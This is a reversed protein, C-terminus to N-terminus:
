GKRIILNTLDHGDDKLHLTHENCLHLLAVFALPVSLSEIMKQPLRNDVQLATYMESFKTEDKLGLAEIDDSGQEKDQNLNDKNEKDHEERLERTTEQLISWQINKLRRMDVKKAQKAYGIQIKEVGKPATILGGDADFASTQSPMVTQSFVNTFEGPDDDVAGEERNSMDPCFNQTDNPNDFDYDGVENDEIPQSSRLRRPAVNSKTVGELKVFDKGSYHLDEPLMTKEEDWNSMTKNQLKVNKKPVKMAKSILMNEEPAVMIEFDMKEKERRKKKETTAGGAVSSLGTRLMPKKTFKWHKPGAWAGFRAKDFYSYEDPVDALHDRITQIDLVERNAHPRPHEEDGDYDVAAEGFGAIDDIGDDVPADADFAHDNDIKNSIDETKSLNFEDDESDNELTWNRFKFNSFTPCIEM